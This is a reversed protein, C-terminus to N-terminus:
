KSITIPKIELQMDMDHIRNNTLWKQFDEFSLERPLLRNGGYEEQKDLAKVFETKSYIVYIYNTEVDKETFLTYEDVEVPNLYTLAKDKSFLVYDRNAEVEFYGKSSSSYPLLCYATQKSDILYVALYGRSPSSFYIFLDDDNRFNSDEYKEDAGNRLIKVKFQVPSVRIERAKGVVRCRVVLTSHEYAIDYEPEGVTELWEGKVLSSGLSTFDVSSNGNWNSVLTSTYGSVLTGFKDALAQIKARYLATEKAEILSVNEPAVYTYDGQVKMVQQASLSLVLFLLCIVIIIRRM